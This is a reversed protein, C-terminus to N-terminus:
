TTHGKQQAQPSEAPLNHLERAQGELVDHPTLPYGRCPCEEDDNGVHGCNDSSCTDCDEREDGEHVIDSDALCRYQPPDPYYHPWAQQPDTM